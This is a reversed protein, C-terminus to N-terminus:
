FRMSQMPLRNPNIPLWRNEWVPSVPSGQDLDLTSHPQYCNRCIPATTCSHMLCHILVLVADVPSWNAIPDFLLRRISIEYILHISSRIIIMRTIWKPLKSPIVCCVFPTSLMETLTMLELFFIQRLLFRHYVGCELLFCIMVRQNQEHVVCGNPNPTTDAYRM